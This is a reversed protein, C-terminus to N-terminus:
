CRFHSWSWTFHLDYTMGDTDDLCIDILEETAESGGTPSEAEAPMGSDGAGSESISDSFAIVGCDAWFPPPPLPAPLAMGELNSGAEPLEWSALEAPPPAIGVPRGLIVDSLHSMRRAVKMAPLLEWTWADEPRLKMSQTLRSTIRPWPFALIKSAIELCVNVLLRPANFALVVSIVFLSLAKSGPWSVAQKRTLECDSALSRAREM